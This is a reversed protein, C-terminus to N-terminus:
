YVKKRNIYIENDEPCRNYVPIEYVNFKIPEEGNEKAIKHSKNVFEVCEDKSDSAFYFSNYIDQAHVTYVFEKM